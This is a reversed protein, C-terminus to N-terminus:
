KGARAKKYEQFSLEGLPKTSRSSGGGVPNIPKPAKTGKAASTTDLKAEIRAFAKHIQVPTMKIIDEAEDEHKALYYAVEPTSDLLADLVKQPVDPYSEVVEDFDPYKDRVKDAEAKYADVKKTREAQEATSREKRDRENLKADLKRDATWDALREYYDAYSEGDKPQPKGDTETKKPGELAEIRAVLKQKEAREAALEAEKRELKRTWGPRKAKEPTQEGEETTTNVKVETETGANGGSLETDLM